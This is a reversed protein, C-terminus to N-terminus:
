VLEAHQPLSNPMSASFPLATSMIITWRSLALLMVLAYLSLQRGLETLVNVHM